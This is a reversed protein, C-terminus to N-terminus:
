DLLVLTGSNLKEWYIFIILLLENPRTARLYHVILTRRFALLPFKQATTYATQLYILSPNMQEMAQKIPKVDKQYVILESCIMIFLSFLIIAMLM